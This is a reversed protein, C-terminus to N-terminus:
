GVVEFYGLSKNGKLAKQLVKITLTKESCSALLQKLNADVSNMILDYVDKAVKFDLKKEIKYKGIIDKADTMSLFHLSARTTKSGTAAGSARAAGAEQVYLPGRTLGDIYSTNHFDVNEFYRGSDIGYYESAMVTGGSQAGKCKNAADKLIKLVGLFHGKKITKVNLAQTVHLVNNLINFVLVEAIIKLKLMAANDVQNFGFSKVFDM